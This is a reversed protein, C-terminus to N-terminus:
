KWQNRIRRLVTAEDMDREKALIKAVKDRTIPRNTAAMREAAIENARAQMETDHNLHGVPKSAVPSSESLMVDNDEDVGFDEAEVAEVEDRAFLASEVSPHTNSGPFTGQTLGTIPHMGLLRSEAIKAYVFSKSQAGLRKGWREILVEGTLYRRAPVFTAIDEERFWCGMLPSLYDFNNESAICQCYDFPPPPDLENANLFAAIGGDEHGAFVWAALEEPTATLRKTLLAMAKPYAIYRVTLGSPTSSVSGAGGISKRGPFYGRRFQREQRKMGALEQRLEALRNEQLALEAATPTAIAEWSAIQKELDHMRGYFSWWFKRNQETAPDHQYDMQVAMSRRQEASMSDWHMPFFEHEVRPRLAVPLQDLPTEFHDELALTLSEFGDASSAAEAASKALEMRVLRALENPFSMGSQDGSLYTSLWDLFAGADVFHVGEREVTIPREIPLRDDHFVGLLTRENARVQNTTARLVPVPNRADDCVPLYGAGLKIADAVPWWLRGAQVVCLFPSYDIEM